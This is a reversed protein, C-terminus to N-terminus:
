LFQIIYNARYIQKTFFIKLDAESEYKCYYWRNEFNNNLLSPSNVVRVRYNAQSPYDAIYVIIHAKYEENVVFVKQAYINNNLYLLLSIIIWRM